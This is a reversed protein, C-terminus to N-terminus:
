VSFLAGIPTRTALARGAFALGSPDVAVGTGDCVSGIFPAYTPAQAGTTGAAVLATGTGNTITALTSNVVAVPCNEVINNAETAGSATTSREIGANSAGIILNNLYSSGTNNAALYESIGFKQYLGKRSVITNNFVKTNKSGSVFIESENNTSPASLGRYRLNSNICLNGFISNYPAQNVQIANGENNECANGYVRVNRTNNDLGIGVGESANSIFNFAAGCYNGYIAGNVCGRPADAGYTEIGRGFNTPGATGGNDLSGSRLCQNYRIVWPSTVGKTSAVEIGFNSNDECVNGEIILGSFDKAAAAATQVFIGIKNKRVVNRNILPAGGGNSIFIGVGTHIECTNGAITGSFILLNTSDIVYINGQGGNNYIHNYRIKATADNAFLDYRIGETGNNYIRNGEIVLNTISPTNTFAINIGAAANNRLVCNLIQIDNVTRTVRIGGVSTTNIIELGDVCTWACNAATAGIAIGISQGTCDLTALGPGVGTLRINSDSPDYVGFVLPAVSTGVNPPVLPAGLTTTTGVAFLFETGAVAAAVAAVLTASTKYPNAATGADTSGTATFDVYKQSTGVYPVTRPALPLASADATAQLQAAIATQSTARGSTISYGVAGGTAAISVNAAVPYPGFVVTSLAVTQSQLLAANSANNVSVAASASGLASVTLISGSPFPESTSLGAQLTSM